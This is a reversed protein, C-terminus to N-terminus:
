EHRMITRGQLSIGSSTGGGFFQSLNPLLLFEYDYDVTVTLEQPFILPGPTVNVTPAPDSANFTVLYDACYALAIARIEDDSPGDQVIGARVAERSANTLVQKNFMVLGYEIGGFIILLLLPLLIAFEVAAGGRENKLSRKIM